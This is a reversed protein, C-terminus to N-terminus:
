PAIPALAAIYDENGALVVIREEVETKIGLVSGLATTVAFSAIAGTALSVIGFRRDRNACDNVVRLGSFFEEVEGCFSLMKNDGFASAASTSVGAECGGSM